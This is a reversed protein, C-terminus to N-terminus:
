KAEIKQNLNNKALWSVDNAGSRKNVIFDERKGLPGTDRIM